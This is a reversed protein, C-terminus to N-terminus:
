AVRTMQKRCINSFSAQCRRAIQAAWGFPVSDGIFVVSPCDPNATQVGRRFGYADTSIYDGSFNSITTVHRADAVLRTFSRVNFTETEEWWVFQGYRIRYLIQATVEVSAFVILLTIVFFIVKTPRNPNALPNM